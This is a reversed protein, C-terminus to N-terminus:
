NNHPNCFKINRLYFVVNVLLLWRVHETFPQLGTFDAFNQLVDAFSQKQIVAERNEQKYLPNQSIDLFSGQM